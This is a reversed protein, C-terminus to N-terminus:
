PTGRGAAWKPLQSQNQVDAIAGRVGQTTPLFRVADCTEPVSRMAITVLQDETPAASAVTLGPGFMAATIGAATILAGAMSMNFMTM